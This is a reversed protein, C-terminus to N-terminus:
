FCLKGGGRKKQHVILVSMDKQKLRVYGLTEVNSFGDVQLKNGM